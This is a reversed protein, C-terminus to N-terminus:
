TNTIILLHVKNKFDAALKHWTILFSRVVMRVRHGMGWARHGKSQSSHEM